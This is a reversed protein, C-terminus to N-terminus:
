DFDERQPCTKILYFFYATLGIYFLAIALLIKM